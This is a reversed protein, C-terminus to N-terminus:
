LIFNIMPLDEIALHVQYLNEHSLTQGKRTNSLSTYKICMKIYYLKDNAHRRHRPTNLVVKHSLTQWQKSLVLSRKNLILQDMKDTGTHLSEHKVTVLLYILQFYNCDCQLAATSCNSSSILVMMWHNCDCQLAATSCNSSSILVMMWHNSLM